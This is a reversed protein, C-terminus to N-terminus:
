RRINSGSSYVSVYSSHLLLECSGNEPAYLSYGDDSREARGVGGGLFFFNVYEKVILLKKKMENDSSM